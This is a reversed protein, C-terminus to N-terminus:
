PITQDEPKDFSALENQGIDFGGGKSVGYQVLFDGHLKYAQEM